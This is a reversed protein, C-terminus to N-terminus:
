AAEYTAASIEFIDNLAWTFPTTSSVAGLPSNSAGNSDYALFVTSGTPAQTVGRFVAGASTDTMFTDFHCPHSSLPSVPISMKWAGTGYSTTSGMTLKQWFDVKKGQRLSHGVMTGNGLSPNVSVATWTPTYSDWAAQLGTMADRVETNMFAATVVEGAVWTRPTYNISM